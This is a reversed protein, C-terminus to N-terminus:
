SFNGAYYKSMKRGIRALNNGTEYWIQAFDGKKPNKFAEKASV